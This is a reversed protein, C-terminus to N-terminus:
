PNVIAQLAAIIRALTDRVSEPVGPSAMVGNYM